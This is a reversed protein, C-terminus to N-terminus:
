QRGHSRSTCALYQVLACVAHQTYDIRLNGDEHSAHFGGVLHPRYWEAFHGTNADTYQLTVLFQLCRELAEAYRRTRARDGAAVAVSHAAALGEAYSASSIQPPVDVPKGDAWGMFGGCWLLRRPDLRDYQLTCLWDAMEYVADAFGQERTLLYAEAYASAQWPVLAMNKHARWWPRYYALAKRVVDTKWAAPRHQQSRMLGYLAEGPYYNVGDPEATQRHEPGDWYSLEGTALQQKRIFHCLQESKQLLDDSPGPLEHIALVLLGAAGLRNIVSSPLSVHRVQPDHPDVVTEEVLSVVAQRARAAHTPNGTLRAGRALAFAAGAQRLYHDGDMPRALAPLCGYRFRGNAENMRCLWDTGRQASWYM